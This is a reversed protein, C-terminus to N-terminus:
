GIGPTNSDIQALNITVILDTFADGITGYVGTNDFFEILTVQGSQGAPLPTASVQMQSLGTQTNGATFNTLNFQAGMAVQGVSGNAQVRWRMTSNVAPTIYVMFDYGPDIVTGAPWFPSVAPRGGLPTYEVGQFTGFIPQTPSTVAILTGTAPNIAVASNRFISTGYGSSIGNQMRLGRDAFGEQNSIVDLGYPASVLAM